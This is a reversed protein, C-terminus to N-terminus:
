CRSPCFVAPVDPQCCGGRPVGWHPLRCQRHPSLIPLFFISVALSKARYHFCFVDFGYVEHPGAADAHACELTVEERHPFGHGSIVTCGASEGFCESFFADINVIFVVGFQNGFHAAVFIVGQHDIRRGDRGVVRFQSIEAAVAEGDLLTRLHQACECLGHTPQAHGSSVTLGGSRGHGGMQQVLADAAISKQSAYRFVVSRIIQERLVTRVYDNFSIFEVTREMVQPRICGDDRGGIGVVEIDVSRFLSIQFAEPVVCTQYLGTSSEHHMASQGHLLTQLGSHTAVVIGPVLSVEM